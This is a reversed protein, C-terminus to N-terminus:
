TAVSASDEPARYVNHMNYSGAHQSLNRLPSPTANKMGTVPDAPLDRLRGLCRYNRQEWFGKTPQKCLCKWGQNVRSLRQAHTEPLSFNSLAKFM